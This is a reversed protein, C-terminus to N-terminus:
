TRWSEKGRYSNLFSWPFRSGEIIGSDLMENVTEEVLKRKHIPTRYPRLRITPHDTADIKMQVTGTQGLEKDTNAIVDGNAKLLKRIDDKYREPVILDEEKIEPSSTEMKREYDKSVRIQKTIKLQCTYGLKEGEKITITKSDTNTLLLPVMERGVVSSCLTLILNFIFYFLFFNILMLGSNHLVWHSEFDSVITQWGLKSVM